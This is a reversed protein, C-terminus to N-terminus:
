CKTDVFNCIECLYNFMTTFFCCYGCFRVRCFGSRWEAIYLLNLSMNRIIVSYVSNKECGGNLNDDGNHYNTNIYRTAFNGYKCFQLIINYLFLLAAAAFQCFPPTVWGSWEQTPPFRVTDPICIVTSKAVIPRRPPAVIGYKGISERRGTSWEQTPLFRM